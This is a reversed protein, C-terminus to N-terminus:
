RIFNFWCFKGFFVGLFKPNIELPINIGYLKLDLTEDKENNRSRSFTLQGCKKPALSLRWLNMWIELEILYNQAIGKANEQANKIPKGNHKYTYRLQYVLDDAFLLCTEKELRAM